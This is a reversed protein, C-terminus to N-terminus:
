APRRAADVQLLFDSVPLIEIGRFNKMRLLHKDGSLIYDAEGDVAAELIRNDDPDDCASLQVTPATLEAVARIRGVGIAVQDESWGFKRSFVEAVESLIPESVVLVYRGNEAAKLFEEPRGGFRLASVYINSDAVVRIL